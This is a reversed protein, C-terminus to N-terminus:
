GKSDPLTILQDYATLWEGTAFDAARLLLTRGFLFAFYAGHRSGVPDRDGINYGIIGGRFGTMDIVSYGEEPLHWYGAGGGFGHHVHGTCVIVDPHNRLEDYLADGKIIVSDPSFHGATQKDLLPRIANHIIVFVPKGQGCYRSLRDHLFDLQEQKIEGANRWMGKYGTVTYTDSYQALVIFHYGRCEGDYYFKNQEKGVMGQEHLHDCHYRVLDGCARELTEHNGVTVFLPRDRWFARISHWYSDLEFDKGFNSYDGGDVLADVGLRQAWQLGRRFAATRGGEDGDSHLDSVLALKLDPTKTKLLFAEYESRLAQWVLKSPLTRDESLTRARQLFARAEEADYLPCHDLERRCIEDMLLRVAETYYLSSVEQADLPRYELSLGALEGPGFGNNGKADAGVYLSSSTLSLGKWTSIDAQDVKQDDIYLTLLGARDASLTIMHWRGDYTQRHGTFQVPADAGCPLFQVTLFARPQLHAITLGINHRDAFATTSLLVSSHERQVPTYQAPDTSDALPLLEGGTWANHCAGNQAKVWIRLTFSYADPLAGPLFVYDEAPSVHANHFMLTRQGGFSTTEQCGHRQARASFLSFDQEM